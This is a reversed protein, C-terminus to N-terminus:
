GISTWPVVTIRNDVQYADQVPAIIYGQANEQKKLFSRMGRLKYDTIDVSTVCEIGVLTGNANIALDISASGRTRYYCDEPKQKGAYEYQSYIENIVLAVLANKNPEDNSPVNLLANLVGTDFIRYMPLAAPNEISPIKYLLFLSILADLHKNILYASTELEDELKSVCIIEGSNKAVIKLLSYALDSNYTGDELQKIDRYCIADLWNLIAEVREDTDSFSSFIPMGGRQIWKDVTKAQVGEHQLFNFNVWPAAFSNEQIERLTMPYLRTIGMRGALSERVGSKDSFEVSGSLTYIGVRRNEDILAKISDFIHPVKQAEDIVLHKTQNNTETLLLQEPSRKARTAVEKKDFTLYTADKLTAWQKM